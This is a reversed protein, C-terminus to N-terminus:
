VVWGDTGLTQTSSAILLLLRTTRGSIYQETLRFLWDCPTSEARLITQFIGKVVGCSLAGKSPVVVAWAALANDPDVPDSCTGDTYCHMTEGFPPFAFESVTDPLAFFAEWLLVQWPSQPVLGHIQFSLPLTDRFLAIYHSRSSQYGPWFRYRHLLTDKARCYKCQASIRIDFKSKMDNTLFTGDRTIDLQEKQQPILSGDGLTTTHFNFGDLDKYGERASLKAAARNFYFPLMHQLLSSPLWLFSVYGNKPKRTEARLDSVRLDSFKKLAIVMFLYWFM